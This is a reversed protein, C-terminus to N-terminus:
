NELKQRWMQQYFRSIFEEAKADVMADGAVSDYDDEEDLEQLNNASAFQSMTGGSVSSSSSATSFFPSAPRILDDFSELSTSTSLSPNSPPPSKNDQLHLPRISGVLKKWNGNSSDLKSKDSKAPKKNQRKRLISMASNLLSFAGRKKKKGGDAAPHAPQKNKVDITAGGDTVAPSEVNNVIENISEDKSM